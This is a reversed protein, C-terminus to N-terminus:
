RCSQPLRENTPVTRVELNIDVRLRDTVRLAAVQDFIESINIRVIERGYKCNV